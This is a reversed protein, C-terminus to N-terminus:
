KVNKGLSILFALYFTFKLNSNMGVFKQWALSPQRIPIKVASSPMLMILLEFCLCYQIDNNIILSLHLALTVVNRLISKACSFYRGEQRSQFKIQWIDRTIVLRYRSM